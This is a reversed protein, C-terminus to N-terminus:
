HAEGGRGLALLALRRVAPDPHGHAVEELARRGEGGALSLAAVVAGLETAPRGSVLSRLFPVAPAGRAGYERAAAHRVRPEPDFLAPQGAALAAEGARAFLAALAAERVGPDPDGAVLGALEGPGLAGGARRVAAARVAGDERALLSRVLEPALEGDLRGLAEWAPAELEGGPEALAVVAPRLAAIRRRGLESLVARRLALPRGPDALARGLVASAEPDAAWVEPDLASLRGLAAEALEPPGAAVLAALRRAGEVGARQAAPLAALEALAGVTAADPDRLYARGRGAVAWAERGALRERWISWGPLPELAVLVREGARFRGPEAPALEEWAICLATAPEAGRLVREV